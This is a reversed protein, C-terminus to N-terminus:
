GLLIIVGVFAEFEIRDVIKWQRQKSGLHQQNWCTIYRKGEQNTYILIEEIIPNIFMLLAESESQPHIGAKVGPQFGIINHAPARGSSRPEAERWETGNPSTYLQTNTENDSSQSDSESDSSIVILHQEEISDISVNSIVSGSDDSDDNCGNEETEGGSSIAPEFSRKRRSMFLFYPTELIIEPKYPLISFFEKTNSVRASM